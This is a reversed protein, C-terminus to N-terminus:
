VSLSLPPRPQQPPGPWLRRVDAAAFSLGRWAIRRGIAHRAQSPAVPVLGQWAATPVIQAAAADGTALLGHAALRGDKLHTLLAGRHDEEVVKTRDPFVIEEALGLHSESAYAAVKAPDRWRIWAWVQTLNWDASM